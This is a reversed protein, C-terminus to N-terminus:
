LFPQVLKRQTDLSEWVSGPEGYVLTYPGSFDTERTLGLCREFDDVDPVGNQFNCKAHCSSALPAIQALDAYKTPGGWNGFDLCLGISGQASEIIEQVYEPRSLTAFWNETLLHIGRLYAEMVLGILQERSRALTEPTPEQKGGVIRVCRAGLAAAADIWGLIWARDRDGYTPHNIDGDDILLSWLEVGSAELAARLEALYPEDRTPVHFHCLEMTRYERAALQAPVDLLDLPNAPTGATMLRANEDGPRGPAVTGILPHLAWTSVSVRRKTRVPGKDDAAIM